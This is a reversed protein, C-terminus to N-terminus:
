KKKKSSKKTTKKTAKSKKTAQSKEEVVTKEPTSAPTPSIIKVTGSAAERQLTSLTMWVEGAIRGILQRHETGPENKIGVVTFDDNYSANSFHFRTGVPFKFSNLVSQSYVGGQFIVSPSPM